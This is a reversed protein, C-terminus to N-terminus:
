DNTPKKGVIRLSHLFGQARQEAWGLAQEDSYAQCYFFVAPFGAGNQGKSRIGAVEYQYLQM